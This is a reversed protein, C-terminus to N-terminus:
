VNWRRKPRHIRCRLWYAAGLMLLLNISAPEPIATIAIDNYQSDGNALADYSIRFLNTAGGSTIASFFTGNYLNTTLGFADQFQFWRNTGDLSASLGTFLNNYLVFEDGRQWNYNTLDLKLQPAGGGIAELSNTVVSMDHTTASGLWFTNTSDGALTLSQFFNTDGGVGPTLTGGSLNTVTGAYSGGGSALAGSSIILGGLLSGRNTLSQGSLLSYGTALATADLRAGGAISIPGTGLAGTVDVKLGGQNIFTGGAYTNPGYVPALTQTGAGTKILQLNNNNAGPGGLQGDFTFDASNNITLTSLTASSNIIKNSFTGGSTPTTSTLGAITQNFGALVFAATNTNGASNQLQMNLVTTTPLADNTGLQVTIGNWNVNTTRIYTTGNYTSQGKLIYKGGGNNGAISSFTLNGTGNIGEDLTVTALNSNFTNLAADGNLTIPGQMEFTGGTVRFVIAGYSSGGGTGFGSITFPEAITMNARIDVRANNSVVTNGAVSGLADKNNIQLVGTEVLTQGTYDNAGTLTVYSSGRQILTGSGSVVGTLANSISNDFILSSNNTIAGAYNASGLSGGVGILLTGANVVTAGTYTNANTLTLTGSGIKALGGAGNLVGGYSTDTSNNGVSLTVPESSQTALTINSNGALGGLTAGTIATGFLLSGNTMTLTSNQLALANSVLISGASIWTGGSFTNAGELTLTGANAKLLSGTNTISGSIITEGSSTLTLGYGGNDIVNTLYLTSGTYAQISAAGGLTIVGGYTNVGALNRLAGNGSPGTGILTLSNPLVVGNTLALGAGSNVTITGTGLAANNGAIILGTGNILTGGTYTNVNTLVLDNAGLKSVGLVNAGLDAIVWSYDRDGSATDFGLYSGSAFNGTGLMNTISDDTVANYVALVAGNSVVYRGATNWGPLANTDTITLTGTRIDTLGTYTNAGALTLVGAGLKLLGGAGGGDLLSQGITINYGVTDVIAGRSLVNAADLGTMFITSNELPRLIGGDFNFESMGVGGAVKNVAAVELEGGPLLNAIAKACVAGMQLEGATGTGKMTIRAAVDLINTATANGGTYGLRINAAANRSYLVAGNTVVLRAVGDAVTSMIRFADANTVTAGDFVLTGLKLQLADGNSWDHLGGQFTLTGAGQKVALGGNASSGTFVVDSANTINRGAGTFDVPGSLTLLGTNVADGLTSNTTVSVANTFVRATVGDSALAGGSLTITGTGLADPNGILLRGGTVASGGSHTNSATLTLDGAGMKNIAGGLGADSIVKTFVLSQGSNGLSLTVGVGGMNTLVLDYADTLGGITYANTAAGFQLADQTVLNSLTSNQAALASNLQLAGAKIITDGTYTSSGALVLLGDGTKVLNGSNTITTYLTATRGAGVGLNHDNGPVLNVWVNSAVLDTSADYNTITGNVWTVVGSGNGINAAGRSINQVQLLGNSLVFNGYSRGANNSISQGLALDLVKVTGGDLSLTGSAIYSSSNSGGFLGLTINSALLTGTGMQLTAYAVGQRNYIRGAVLSGIQADLMGASVDFIHYKAPTGNNDQKGLEMLNMFSTGGASGRLVLSGGSPLDLIASSARSGITFTDANIANVQGLHLLNTNSSSGALTADGFAVTWATITNTTALTILGLAGNNAGTGPPGFRITRAPAHYTFAGLGSM